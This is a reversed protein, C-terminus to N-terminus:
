DLGYYTGITGICGWKIGIILAIAEYTRAKNPSPGEEEGEEEEM